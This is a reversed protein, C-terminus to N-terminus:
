TRPLATISPLKSRWCMEAAAMLGDEAKRQGMREAGEKVGCVRLLESFDRLIGASEEEGKHVMVAAMLTLEWGERAEQTSADQTGAWGWSVYPMCPPCM